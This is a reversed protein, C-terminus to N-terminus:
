KWKLFLNRYVELPITVNVKNKFFKENVAEKLFDIFESITHPEVANLDDKSVVAKQTLVESPYHTTNKILIYLVICKKFEGTETDRRNEVCVKYRGEHPVTIICDENMYTNLM